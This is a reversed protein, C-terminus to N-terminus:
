APDLHAALAADLGVFGARLVEAAALAHKKSSCRAFAAGNVSITKDDVDVSKIESWAVRRGSEVPRLEHALAFSRLALVGDANASFPWPEVVYVRGFPPLPNLLFAASAKTGLAKSLTKLKPTGFFFPASAVISGHRAWM